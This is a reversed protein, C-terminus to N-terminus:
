KYLGNLRIYSAVKPAVMGSVNMGYRIRKRVITSAINFLNLLSTDLEEVVEDGDERLILERVKYTSEIDPFQRPLVLVKEGYLRDINKWNKINQYTDEGMVIVYESVDEKETRKIESITKYTYSPKPLYSEITDIAFRHDTMDFDVMSKILMEHRDYFSALDREEKDPNQPSIIFRVKDVGAEELCGQAVYMHSVTTPNFSGFYLGVKKAM